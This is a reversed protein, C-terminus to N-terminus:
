LRKQNTITLQEREERGDAEGQRPVAARVARPHDGGHHGAGDVGGELEDGAAPVRVGQGLAGGGEGSRDECAGRIGGPAGDGPHDYREEHEDAGPDPGAEGVPPVEVSDVLGADLDPPAHEPALDEVNWPIPDLVGVHGLAYQLARELEGVEHDM